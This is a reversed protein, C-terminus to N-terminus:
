PEAAPVGALGSRKGGAERVEDAKLDAPLESTPGVWAIQNGKVFISADKVDGLEPSFTAAVAFHKYLTSLAPVPRPQGGGSGM